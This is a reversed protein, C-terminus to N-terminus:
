DQVVIAPTGVGVSESVVAQGGYPREVTQTRYTCAAVSLAALALIVLSRM